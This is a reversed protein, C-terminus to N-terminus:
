HCRSTRWTDPAESERYVARISAWPVSDNGWTHTPARERKFWDKSYKARGASLYRWPIFKVEADLELPDCSRITDTEGELAVMVWLTTVAGM